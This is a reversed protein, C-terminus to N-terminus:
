KKKEEKAVIQRFGVPDSIVEAYSAAEIAGVLLVARRVARRDTRENRMSMWAVKSQEILDGTSAYVSITYLAMNAQKM